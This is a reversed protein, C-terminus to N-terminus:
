ETQEAAEPQPEAPEPQPPEPLVGAFVEPVKVQGGWNEAEVRDPPVRDGPNFARVPVAGAGGFMLPEVAEYFPPVEPEPAPVPEPPVKRPMDAEM